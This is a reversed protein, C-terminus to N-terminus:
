FLSRQCLPTDFYVRRRTRIIVPWGLTTPSPSIYWLFPCMAHTPHKEPPFPTGLVHKFVQNQRIRRVGTVLRLWHTVNSKAGNESPRLAGGCRVAPFPPLYSVDHRRIGRLSHGISDEFCVLRAPIRQTWANCFYVWPQTQIIAFHSLPLRAKARLAGSM